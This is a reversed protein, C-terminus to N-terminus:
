APSITRIENQRIRNLVDAPVDSQEAIWLPDSAELPPRPVPPAQGQDLLGTITLLRRRELEHLATELSPSEAVCDGLEPYSVRNVWVGPSTEVLRAELLYPVRLYDCFRM